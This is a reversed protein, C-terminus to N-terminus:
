NFDYLKKQYDLVYYKINNKGKTIITHGEEILLRKQLEIGEPFKSNLEGNSKLVRWFPTLNENRQYSSYAVINIFIGCTFPCTMDVQYKKAIENRINETTVLKGYPIKKIIDDYDTPPAVVMTEKGWKNILKDDLKIIKPMDKKDNLIKNYDKNINM